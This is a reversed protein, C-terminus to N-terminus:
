RVPQRLITRLKAPAVRRPDSRYIEHHRDRPRLGRDRAGAIRPAIYEAKHRASLDLKM